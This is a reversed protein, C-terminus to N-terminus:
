AGLNLRVISVSHNISQWFFFLLNSAVLHWIKRSFHVFNSKRQREGSGRATNLPGVKLPFLFILPLLSLSPSLLIFFEIKFPSPGARLIKASLFARTLTRQLRIVWQYCHRCESEVCASASGHTCQTSHVPYPPHPIKEPTSNLVRPSPQIFGRPDWSRDQGRDRLDPRMQVDGTHDHNLDM